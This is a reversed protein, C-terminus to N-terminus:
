GNILSRRAAAFEDSSLFAREATEWVGGKSPARWLKAMARQNADKDYEDQEQVIAAVTEYDSAAIGEKIAAITPFLERVLAMYEMQNEATPIKSNANAANGDDDSPDHEFALSFIMKVLYRSGYSMSSGAAHIATKNKSGKIGVDDPPLDIFTRDTHGEAHSVDCIYRTWTEGNEVKVPESKFALSLGERTYIPRIQSMIQEFTAYNSSTQSNTRDCKILPMDAQARAMATAYQRKANAAEMEKNMDMLGRMVEMDVNQHGSIAAGIMEMPTPAALKTYFEQNSVARDETTALESM